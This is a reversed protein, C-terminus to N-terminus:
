AKDIKFNGFMNKGYMILSSSELDIMSLEIYTQKSIKENHIIIRDGIDFYSDTDNDESSSKKEFDSSNYYFETQNILIEFSINNYELSVSGQNELIINEGRIRGIIDLELQPNDQINSCGSFGVILLMFIIGSVIQHKNM